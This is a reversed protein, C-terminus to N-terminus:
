DQRWTTIVGWCSVALVIWVLRTTSQVDTVMSVLAVFTVVLTVALFFWRAITLLDAFYKM